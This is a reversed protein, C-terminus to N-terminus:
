KSSKPSYPPGTSMSKSSPIPETHSSYDMRIDHDKKTTAVQLNNRFVGGHEKVTVTQGSSNSAAEDSENQGVGFLGSIANILPSALSLVSATEINTPVDAIISTADYGPEVSKFNRMPGPSCYCRTRLFTPLSNVM